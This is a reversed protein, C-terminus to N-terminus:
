APALELVFEMQGTNGVSAPGGSPNNIGYDSFVVPVSGQVAIVNATRRANLQFTIAKTTGHLTLKGNATYRVQVGNKPETGLAIPKTLAFTATPFDATDMIRGQFQADRTGKDSGVSTMDVTFSAKTVTTGAITMSGTVSTTKGVATNSQGFLTEKVRYRVLSPSTIKWTGALPARTEGAKLVTTPTTDLSLPKPAPGEIFHFYVFPGGVVIVLVAVVG